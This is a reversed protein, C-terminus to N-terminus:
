PGQAKFKNKALSVLQQAVAARKSFARTVDASTLIGKALRQLLGDTTYAETIELEEPTLIRSTRIVDLAILDNKREALPLRVHNWVDKPLQWAHPISAACRQRKEEALPVWADLLGM